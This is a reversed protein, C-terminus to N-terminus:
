QLIIERRRRSQIKVNRPLTTFFMERNVRIQPITGYKPFDHGKNPVMHEKNPITLNRALGYVGYQGIMGRIKGYTMSIEHGFVSAPPSTAFVFFVM